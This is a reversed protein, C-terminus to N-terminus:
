ADILEKQLKNLKNQTNSESQKADNHRVEAEQKRLKNMNKFDERTQRLKEQLRQSEREYKETM